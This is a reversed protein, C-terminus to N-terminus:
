FFQSADVLLKEYFTVQQKKYAVNEELKLKRSEDDARGNAIMQEMNGFGEWNAERTARIRPLSHKFDHLEKEASLLFKTTILLPFFRVIQL